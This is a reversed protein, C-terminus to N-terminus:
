QWFLGGGGQKSPRVSAPWLFLTCSVAKFLSLADDGAEMIQWFIAAKDTTTTTVNQLHTHMIYDPLLAWPNIALGMIASGAVLVM